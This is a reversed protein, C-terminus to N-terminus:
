AHTANDKHTAAFESADLWALQGRGGENLRESLAMTLTEPLAFLLSVVSGHTVALLQAQALDLERRVWGELAYPVSCALRVQQILAIKEATLLAQAV